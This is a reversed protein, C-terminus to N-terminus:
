KRLLKIWKRQRHRYFVKSWLVTFPTKWGAYIEVEDTYDTADGQKVLIIRHNWVPVYKNGENTYITLTKKDFAVVRITHVGMPLVGCVKLRFKFENGESWVFPQNDLPKFSAFPSAIYQLTSINQLKEWVADPTAPLRTSVTITKLGNNENPFRSLFFLEAGCHKCFRTTDAEENILCKPCKKM